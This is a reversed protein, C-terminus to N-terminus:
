RKGEQVLDALDRMEWARDEAIDRLEPDYDGVQSAHIVGIAHQRLAEAIMQKQKGNLRRM